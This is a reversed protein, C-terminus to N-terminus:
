NPVERWGESAPAALEFRQRVREVRHWDAYQAHEVVEADFEVAVDWGLPGDRRVLLRTTHNDNRYTKDILM